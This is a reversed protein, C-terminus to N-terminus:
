SPFVKQNAERVHLLCVSFVLRSTLDTPTELKSKLEDCAQLLQRRDPEELDSVSVTEATSKLTKILSTVTM